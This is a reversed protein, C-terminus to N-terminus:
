FLTTFIQCNIPGGAPPAREWQVVPVITLGARNGVQKMALIPYVGRCPVPCLLITLISQEM